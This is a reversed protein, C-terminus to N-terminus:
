QTPEKDPTPRMFRGCEACQMATPSHLPCRAEIIRGGLTMSINNCDCKPAVHKHRGM